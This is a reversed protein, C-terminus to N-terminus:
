PEGRSGPYTNDESGDLRLNRDSFAYYRGWTHSGLHIVIANATVINADAMGHLRGCLGVDASIWGRPLLELREAASFRSQWPQLLAM